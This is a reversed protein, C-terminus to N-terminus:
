SLLSVASGSFKTCNVPNCHYYVHDKDVAIEIFDIEYRKGIELCTKRLEKDINKGFIAKRYKAPCVIHYM